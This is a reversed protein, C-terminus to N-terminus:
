RSSRLRPLLRENLFKARYEVYELMAPDGAGRRREIFHDLELDNVGRVELHVHNGKRSGAFTRDLSEWADGGSLWGIPGSPVPDKKAALHAYLIELSLVYRGEALMLRQRVHADGGQLRGAPHVAHVEAEGLFRVTKGGDASVRSGVDVGEHPKSVSFHVNKEKPVEVFLRGERVPAYALDDAGSVITEGPRLVFLPKVDALFRDTLADLAPKHAKWESAPLRRGNLYLGPALEVPSVPRGAPAASVLSVLCFALALVSGNYLRGRGAM